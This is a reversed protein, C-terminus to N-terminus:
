AHHAPFAVGEAAPLWVTFTAGQGPRSDVEVRGGFLDVVSKVIALGLGSGDVADASDGDRTRAADIRYFRDFLHPLHEPAIGPGNDAVRVWAWDRGERRSRGTEVVVQAAAGGAYKIGNEMLNTLLHTLYGRDAQTLAEDLAGARLSVQRSRALPTLREIADLALESLDLSENQLIPRGADMRALTLLENVLRSMWENESQIIRLAREYEATSRPRELSRNAELEIIALPTRLEHSADATFQRQREFAAQLRDLMADFTDALEGLEDARGLRLRRSLDRDGIDRATRTIIEVPRMARNALWYGGGFAVLLTVGFLLGLTVALRPLQNGPDLPGGVILRGSGQEGFAVPALALLYRGQPADPGDATPRFTYDRLTAGSHAANDWAAMVAVIDAPAFNASRQLLNGDGGQLALVDHPQLLPLDAATLRFPIHVEHEEETSRRYITLYYSSVQGAQALLRSGTEARLVQGQRVYIFLSVVALILALIAVFWLTLRFRFSHRLNRWRAPLRDASDGAM